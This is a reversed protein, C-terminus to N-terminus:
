RPAETCVFTGAALDWQWSAMRGAQQALGLREALARLEAEVQAREVAEATRSAVEEILTVEEQTWQRPRSHNVYLSGRWVGRRVYPVAVVSIAGIEEYHGRESVLGPETRVDTYVVTRGSTFDVSTDESWHGLPVSGSLQQLEGQAWGTEFSMTQMDTAAESYGVRGVKLFAGLM